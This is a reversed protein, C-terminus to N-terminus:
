EAFGVDTAAAIFQANAKNQEYVKNSELNSSYGGAGAVLRDGSVINFEHEIIYPGKTAKECLEKLESLKYKM